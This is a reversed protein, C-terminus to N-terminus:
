KKEKKVDSKKIARNCNGCEYYEKSVSKYVDESECKPCKILDEAVNSLTADLVTNHKYHNKYDSDDIDHVTRLEFKIDDSKKKNSM